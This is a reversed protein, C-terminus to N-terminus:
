LVDEKIKMSDMLVAAGVVGLLLKSEKDIYYQQVELLKNMVGYIRLVNEKSKSSKLMSKYYKIVKGLLEEASFKELLLKILDISALVQGGLVIDVLEKLKIEDDEHQQINGGKSVVELNMLLKRPSGEASEILFSAVESSIDLKEKEVVKVLLQLLDSIGVPSLRFQSCRQRVTEILKDADTTCLLISAYSPPEELTKLLLSQGAHTLQQVEDLVLIKKKSGMPMIRLWDVVERMADIGRTDGVNEERYDISQFFTLCGSCKGCPKSENDVDAICNLAKGLIRALSTKGTGAPGQFLVSKWDTSVQLARVIDSHGVVEGWRSPRYKDTFSRSGKKNM